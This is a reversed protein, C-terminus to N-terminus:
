LGREPSARKTSAAAPISARRGAWRRLSSRIPVSAASFAWLGCSRRGTSRGTSRRSPRSRGRGRSRRVTTASPSTGTALTPNFFFRGNPRNIGYTAAIARYDTVSLFECWDLEDQEVAQRCAAQGPGVTFVIRDVNAPRPGRYFRNRELVIQRNPVRSAINYPGSGLPDDIEQLPTDVAIPCFFPMTLRSVLDPVPKTTRIQLSYPGLARVGPITQAKGALVANAGVIDNLYGADAAASKVTPNADRNFAAVYNAATIRQGTQVRFTRRLLITQTKGDRSVGPFGTAVEPVVISGKPAPADPYNYLKACTAYELMWSGPGYAIAPDVSAVDLISSLRLTGGGQTPGAVAAAAAAALLGVGLALGVFAVWRRHVV